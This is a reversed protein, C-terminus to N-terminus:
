RCGGPKVLSGSQAAALRFAHYTTSRKPGHAVAFRVPPEIATFGTAFRSEDHCRTVVLLSGASEATLPRTLEFHNRPSNRPPWSYVGVDTDRLYYILTAIDARSEAVVADAGSRAAIEAVQRGLNEGGMTRRYVDDDIPDPYALRDAMTDSVLLASQAAFGIVLSAVLLGYRGARVLVAATVVFASIYATVAWNANSNGLFASVTITLLPPLSFAILMRDSPTLDTSRLRAILVLLVAFVIPGAVAFQAALFELGETLDLTFDGSANDGTHRFTLFGNDINWAVNPALMLFGVLIALLLAPSRVLRRSYPDFIAAVTLGAVFYVMAYKSLLGLGLGIAVLLAWWATGGSRLKVFGLLALAWFFLLPVDTSIIRASFVVGPAAIALLGAWFGTKEDYLARGIAFVTLSTGFYFIPSASRVCAEGSGCVAQSAAIIWAIMPPKSFYGFALDRSWAWYQAEDLYLDVVSLHLGVLRAVTVCGVLVVFLPLWPVRKETTALPATVTM